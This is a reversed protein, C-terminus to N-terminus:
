QRGCDPGECSMTNFDLVTSHGPNGTPGPVGKPVYFQASHAGYLGSPLVFSKLV